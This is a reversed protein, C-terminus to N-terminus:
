RIAEPGFGLAGELEDLTVVEVEPADAEAAPERGSHMGGPRRVRVTRMGMARAGRFDKAPNDGVYAAEPGPVALAALARAFPEPSPKWREQEDWGLIVVADLVGDLGLAALKARQSKEDGETVLGLKVRRRLRELARGADPFLELRPRHARYAEVLAQAWEGPLGNEHLWLDFTRGRGGTEALREMERGIARAPRPVRQAAWEAAARLGGAVFQREPYLTDDLDFVVASLGPSM